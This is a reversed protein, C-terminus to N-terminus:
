IVHSKPTKKQECSPFTPIVTEDFMQPPVPNHFDNCITHFTYDVTRTLMPITDPSIGYRALASSFLLASSLAARFSLSIM